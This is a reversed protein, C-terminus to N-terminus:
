ASKKQFTRILVCVAAPICSAVVYNLLHLVTAFALAQEKNVDATMMLGQQVLLHFGGAAGPTPVFNSLTGITFAILSAKADVSNQMNFGFIMLYFSLWYCGWMVFSLLAIIPFSIPNTLCKTGTEFEILKETLINSIREPLAKKIFPINMVWRVIVSLKPLLLLGVTAAGVMSIGGPVLWPVTELVSQPLITLTGGVLLALMAVDLLRDILLTPAVAAWPLKELRSMEVLRVVEGGKPIVVNVAYGLIVAYFSNWLSVNREAVPKLLIIWRVARLFHSIVGIAFVLFVFLPNVEQMYQMMKNFDIGKFAFYLLGAGLLLAVLLKWIPQRGQKLPEVEQSQNTM